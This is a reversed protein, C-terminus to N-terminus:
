LRSPERHVAQRLNCAHMPRTGKLRLKLTGDYAVKEDCLVNTFSAEVTGVKQRVLEYWVYAHSPDQLAYLLREFLGIGLYAAEQLM